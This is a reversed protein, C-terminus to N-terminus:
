NSSKHMCALFIHKIYTYHTKWSVRDQVTGHTGLFNAQQTTIVNIVGGLIIVVCYCESYNLESRQAVYVWTRVVLIDLPEYNMLEFCSAIITM